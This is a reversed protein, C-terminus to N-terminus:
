AEAEAEKAVVVKVTGAVERHLKVPVSHEGLSKISDALVIKHRDIKYGQKDLAEAIDRSTVSGFVHDEEGVKLHFNLTVTALLKALEQADGAAKAETKLWSQREQEVIKKNAETAPLAMRKPLLFNRAYGAKVKVVQGPTGLNVVEQKLIVDM